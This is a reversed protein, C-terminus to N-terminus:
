ASAGAAVEGLVGAPCLDALGELLDEIVVGRYVGGHLVVEDVGDGAGGRLGVDGDRSGSPSVGALGFHEGEDGLPEGVALDGFVEDHAFARDLAVDVVQECFDVGSVSGLGDGVGVM